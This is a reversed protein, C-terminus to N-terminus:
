LEIRTSHRPKVHHVASHVHSAAYIASNHHDHKVEAETETENQIVDTALQDAMEIIPERNENGQVPLLIEKQM